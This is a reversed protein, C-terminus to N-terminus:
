FLQDAFLKDVTEEALSRGLDSSDAFANGRSNADAKWIPQGDQLNHLLATYTARPKSITHGGMTYGPSQNFNFFTTDGVTRATGSTAGPYYSQPIYAHKVGEGVKTIILVTDAGSALVEHTWEESTVQRTPPVLDIGRVARVDHGAFRQVVTGEITQREELGVGLAFVAVSSFSDAQRYAPDVFSTVNTRAVCAFLMTTAGFLILCARLM